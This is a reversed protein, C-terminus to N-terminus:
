QVVKRVAEVGSKVQALLSKAKTVDPTAGSVAGMMSTAADLAPALQAELRAPAPKGETHAKAEAEDSKQGLNGRLGSVALDLQQAAKMMADKDSGALATEMAAIAKDTNQLATQPTEATPAVVPPPTERKQTCGVLFVGVVLLVALWHLKM